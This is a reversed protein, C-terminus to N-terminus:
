AAFRALLRRRFEQPLIDGYFLLLLGSLVLALAQAVPVAFGHVLHRTVFWM